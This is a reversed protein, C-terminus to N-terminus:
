RKVFKMNACVKNDSGRIIRAIYVGPSLSSIDIKRNNFGNNSIAKSGSLVQNGLLDYFDISVPLIDECIFQINIKDAAPNPYIGSMKINNCDESVSTVPTNPGGPSGQMAGNGTWNVALRNDRDPSILELSNGSGDAAAPWPANNRYHVYDAAIEGRYYVTIRSTNSLTFDNVSLNMTDMNYIASFKEQNNCFVLYNDPHLDFNKDPLIKFNDIFIEIDSTSFADADNNYIEFWQGCNNENGPNYMIENIVIKPIDQGTKEFYAEIYNMSDLLIHAVSASDKLGPLYWGEFKYGQAAIAEIRVPVNRFYIGRWPNAPQEITSIRIQGGKDPHSYLEVVSTDALGFQDVYNMRMFAPRRRAFDKILVIQNEWDKGSSDWRSQQWHIENRINAALSDTISILRDPLFVTNLLDASRNIFSNRFHSNQMITGFIRSFELEHGLLYSIHNRDPTASIFGISLDHDFSVMRWKGDYDDSSWFKLNNFPWDYNVIFLESIVYDIFNDIALGAEIKRYNEDVSMDMALLSDFFARYAAFDGNLLRNPHEIININKDDLGYKIAIFDDDVRERINNMGYFEGNIFCLAPRYACVDLKKLPKFLNSVIGDRMMSYNWDQGGNRLLINDYEPQSEKGFFPYEFKTVGYEGRAYFRFSKQPYIRTAGGHLRMGGAQSYDGDDFCFSFKAPVEFHMYNNIDVFLGTWKDWLLLSDLGVVVVPLETDVGVVYSAFKEKGPIRGDEYIVARLMCTHDIMIPEDYVASTDTPTSGDTSYYIKGNIQRGSLEVEIPSNYFGTNHSFIVDSSIKSYVNDNPKGPTSPYSLGFSGEGDKFRAFSINDVQPGFTMEDVINGDKDWIYFGEGDANLKFNTHIEDAQKQWGQITTNIEESQFDDLTKSIGNVKIDAFNFVSLGQTEGSCYAIGMYDTSKPPYYFRATEKWYYNNSYYYSVVTDGTRQLRIKAQSNKLEISTGKWLFTADIEPRLLFITNYRVPSNVFFAAYPSKQTLEDRVMLGITTGYYYERVSFIEFEIDFDGDVPIYNFRFGDDKAWSGLHFGSAATTFHDTGYRNKDSAYVLQYSKGPLNRQPLKWAKSFDYKDSVYYDGLNIEDDSDNYIEIWDPTDFDEDHHANGNAAMIENIKLEASLSGFSLLIILFQAISKMTM